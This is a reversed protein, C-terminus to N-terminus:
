LDFKKKLQLYKAYESLNNSKLKGESRLKRANKYEEESMDAKEANCVVCTLCLNHIVDLGGASTPTKHDINLQIVTNMEDPTSAPIYFVTGCYYCKKQQAEYLLIIKAAKGLDHNKM